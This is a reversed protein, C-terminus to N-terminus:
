KSLWTALTLAAGFLGLGFTFIALGGFGATSLVVGGVITASLWGLSSFTVNLGMIAGRAENSVDSLL